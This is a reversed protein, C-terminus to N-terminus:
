VSGVIKELLKHHARDEKLTADAPLCGGCAKLSLDCWCGRWFEACNPGQQFWHASTTHHKLAGAVDWFGPDSQIEGDRYLFPVPVNFHKGIKGPTFATVSLCSSSKVDGNKVCQCEGQDHYNGWCSQLLPSFNPSGLGSCEGTCCWSGWLQTSGAPVEGFCIGGQNTFSTLQSQQLTVSM